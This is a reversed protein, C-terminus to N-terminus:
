AAAMGGICQHAIIHLFCAWCAWAGWFTIHLNSTEWALQGEFAMVHSRASSAAAGKLDLAVHNQRSKAFSWFIVATRAGLVLALANPGLFCCSREQWCVTALEQVSESTTKNMVLKRHGQTGSVRCHLEVSSREFSDM